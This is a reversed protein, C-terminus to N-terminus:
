SATKLAGDQVGKFNVMFADPYREAAGGKVMGRIRAINKDRELWNFETEKGEFAPKMAEFEAALDKESTIYVPSIETTPGSPETSPPLFAASPLPM